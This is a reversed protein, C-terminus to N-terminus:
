LAGVRELDEKLFNSLESRQVVWTSIKALFDFGRLLSRIKTFAIKERYLIPPPLTIRTNVRFYGLKFQKRCFVITYKNFDSNVLSYCCRTITDYWNNELIFISRQM